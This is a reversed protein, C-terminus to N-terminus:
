GGAVSLGAADRCRSVLGGAGRRGQCSRGAESSRPDPAALGDGRGRRDARAVDGLLPGGSLARRSLGARSSLPRGASFHERWLGSRPAGRGRALSRDLGPARVPARDLALTRGCGVGVAGPGPDRGRYRPGRHQPRRAPVLGEARPDSLRRHARHGCLALAGPQGRDILDLSGAGPRRDRVLRDDPRAIPSSVCGGVRAGPLPVRDVSWPGAGVAALPEGGAAARGRVPRQVPRPPSIGLRAYPDFVLWLPGLFLLAARSVRGVARRWVGRQAGGGGVHCDARDARWVLSRQARVVLRGRGAGATGRGAGPPRSRAVFPPALSGPRDGPRGIPALGAREVQGAAGTGPHRRCAGM